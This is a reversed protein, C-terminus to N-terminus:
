GGTQVSRPRQPRGQRQENPDARVSRQPRVLNASGLEAYGAQLIDSLIQRRDPETDMALYERALIRLAYNVNLPESGRKVREENIYNTVLANGDTWGTGLVVCTGFRSPNTEDFGGSVGFGWDEWLDVLGTPLFLDLIDNAVLEIPADIPWTKRYYAVSVEAGRYGASETRQQYEATIQEPEPNEIDRVLSESMSMAARGLASSGMLRNLGLEKRKEIMRVEVANEIAAQKQTIVDDIM